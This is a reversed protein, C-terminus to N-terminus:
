PGSSGVAAVVEERLWALHAQYESEQRGREPDSWGLMGRGLRSVARIVATFTPEFRTLAHFRRDLLDELTMAQTDRIASEVWPTLRAPWQVFPGDVTTVLHDAGAGPAKRDDPPPFAPGWQGDPRGSSRGRTVSARELVREALARHTTLRAGIVSLVGKPGAEVLGDSTNEANPASPAGLSSRVGAFADVIDRAEPHFSPFHDRLVELLYDVEDREPRVSEIPGPYDRETTGVLLLQGYPLAFVRRDDKARLVIAADLPLRSRRFVLHIGKTPPPVPPQEERILWPSGWPGCASIVSRARIGFAQSQMRDQVGLATVKGGEEEIKVAELHNLVRAGSRRARQILYLVLHADDTVGETFLLTARSRAADFQPVRARFEAASLIRRPGLNRRGGFRQDVWSGFRVRRRESPSEPLPLLFPTPAIWSPGLEHFLRGRERLAGRAAGGHGPELYRLGGYLMKSSMSSAGAAFDTREVLATRLGRRSSLDAIAAGTIGGGVVVIDFTGESLAEIEQARAVWPDYELPIVPEEHVAGLAPPTTTV